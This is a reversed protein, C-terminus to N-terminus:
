IAFRRSISASVVHSYYGSHFFQTLFQATGRAKFICIHFIAAAFRAADSNSLWSQVKFRSGQVKFEEHQFGEEPKKVV